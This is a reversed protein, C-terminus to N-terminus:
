PHAGGAYGGRSSDTLSAMLEAHALNLYRLARWRPNHGPHERFGDATECLREWWLMVDQRLRQVEGPVDVRDDMVVESWVLLLDGLHICDSLTIDALREAAFRAASGEPQAEVVEGLRASLFARLPTVDEHHLDDSFELLERPRYDAAM